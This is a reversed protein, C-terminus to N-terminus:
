ARIDFNGGTRTLNINYHPDADIYKQWKSSFLNSEKELRAKKEPSVDYGRTQSEYHFLEVGHLWVNDRGLEMIKLSLDVDNYAVSLEEDFGKVEHFDTAKVMVCAATVASYNVNIELRGFYGFEGQVFMHHPHGAVGGLGVVVGAHQIAHNPYYLKAGVCGIRDFQEFSVMTDIWDPSIVETDNNLFLYYKGSALTAAINNIQSYNFPIDIVEVKFKDGLKIKFEEYLEFLKEDKSGNDAIIIEYNSYTTKEVISSLCRKMDYFGDRTPIIISVLDYTLVDYKVDYLGYGAAHNVTGKLGRRELAEEVAKRGAEFAYMKSGQNAATSTPLVRWYYLVKPIHKIKNPQTKEVFRLVLDFDQAGVFEHRFGGIEKLISTRYVGLHSIYNTGLLLDPSYDPKFAPEFRNGKTDIKDEDSYILDLEPNENLAKVVEYLAVNSLEDDNDLLAAFDGTAIELASNTAKSIHGNETRYVVKVRSDKAAYKELVKKIEPDTSKDDAICLELKPYVQELVSEICKELWRIPANYVPMLISITPQYKFAKIENKVVDFDWNENKAIWKKYAKKESQERRLIRKARRKLKAVHASSVNKLVQKVNIKRM